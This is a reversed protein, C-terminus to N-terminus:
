SRLMQRIIQKPNKVNHFLKVETAAMEDAKEILFLGGDELLAMQQTYRGDLWHEMECLQEKLARQGAALTALREYNLPAYGDQLNDLRQAMAEATLLLEHNSLVQLAKHLEQKPM